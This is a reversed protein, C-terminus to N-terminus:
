AKFRSPRNLLERLEPLETTPADLRECFQKWDHSSLKIRTDQNVRNEADPWVLSMIYQTLNQGNLEAAKAIVRKKVEEVRIDIRTLTAM